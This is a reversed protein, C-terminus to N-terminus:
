VRIIVEIVKADEKEGVTARVGLVEEAEQPGLQAGGGGHDQDKSGLYWISGEWVNQARVQSTWTEALSLQSQPRRLLCSYSTAAWM